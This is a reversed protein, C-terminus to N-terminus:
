FLPDFSSHQQNKELYPTQLFTLVFTYKTRECQLFEYFFTKKDQAQAQALGEVLRKGARETLQAVRSM